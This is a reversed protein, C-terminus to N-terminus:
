SFSLTATQKGCEYLQYSSDNRTGFFYKLSVSTGAASTIFNMTDAPTASQSQIAEYSFVM